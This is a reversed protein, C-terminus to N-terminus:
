FIPLDSIQGATWVHLDRSSFDLDESYRYGPFYCKRLATGGKFLIHGALDPLSSIGALMYSLAHDRLVSEYPLSTQKQIQAIRV